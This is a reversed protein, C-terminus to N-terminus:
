LRSAAKKRRRQALLIVLRDVLAGLFAAILLAWILNIRTSFFVFGVKVTASNDLVFGVLLALAVLAAVLRVLERRNRKKRPTRGIADPSPKGVSTEMAREKDDGPRRARQM